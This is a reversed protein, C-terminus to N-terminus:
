DIYKFVIRRRQGNDVVLGEYEGFGRASVAQVTISSGTANRSAQHEAPESSQGRSAAYASSHQPHFATEGQSHAGGDSAGPTPPRNWAEAWPQWFQALWPASSPNAMAGLAAMWPNPPFFGGLLGLWPSMGPHASPLPSALFPPYPIQGALQRALDQGARLNAEAVSYANRILESVRNSTAGTEQTSATGANTGSTAGGLLARRPSTREPKARRARQLPTTGETSSPTGNSARGEAPAGTQKKTPRSRPLGSAPATTGAKAKKVGKRKQTSRDNAM